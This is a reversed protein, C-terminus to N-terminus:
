NFMELINNKKLTKTLKNNKYAQEYFKIGKNIVERYEENFLVQYESMKITELFYTYWKINFEVDIIKITELKEYCFVIQIFNAKPKEKISIILHQCNQIKTRYFSIM